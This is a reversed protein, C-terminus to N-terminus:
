KRTLFALSEVHYTHPFFDIMRISDIEYKDRLKKLDRAFTSPNCSVYAIRQPSIALVREMAARTLGPRPPDLILAHFGGKLKATEARGRVFGFGRLGNIEANREGDKISHPSDEVAVVSAGARALCLSFNGAGAYLDLVRMGDLSGLGSSILGAVQRNLEWNSQFFSWPSVTYKLGELDLTVHGSGRYSDDEFAVGAFGARIFTEALNENFGAGKILAVLCDGSTIHIERIGSVGSHIIERLADNIERVMVLCEAVPAVDRTGERFFGVEGERSVKFQARHRYHFDSGAVPELLEAQFGGIRELCDALVHKKMSVQKEYAVFQLQCGGCRGFYGCRPKVRQESPELIGTVSAVSYDRKRETVSVEVLEGPIAGRIFVVGGDRAIVYGGYVADEAKIVM